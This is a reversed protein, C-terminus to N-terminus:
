TLFSGSKLMENEASFAIKRGSILTQKRFSVNKLARKQDETPSVYINPTAFSLSEPQLVRDKPPHFSLKRLRFM